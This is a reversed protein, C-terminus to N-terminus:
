FRGVLSLAAGGPTVVPVVKPSTSEEDPTVLIVVGTVALAASWLTMELRFATSKKGEAIAWAVTSAGGYIADITGITQMTDPSAEELIATVNVATLSLNAVAGTVDLIDVVTSNGTDGQPGGGVEIARAPTATAKVAMATATFVAAM